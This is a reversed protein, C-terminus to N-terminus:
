RPLGTDSLMQETLIKGLVYHKRDPFFFYVKEKYEFLSPYTGIETLQKRSIPIRDNDALLVPKKFMIPQGKAHAVERGVSLYVPRRNRCWDCVHRGQNADGTNNHFILVFRGDRLKYLPCPIVPQAVKQGGDRYRLVDPKSWTAGHDESISYAAYGTASRMICFLRGDSLSQITPEQLMSGWKHRPDTMRLGDAGNEPLTTMTLKEPDDETLINDFRMFRVESPFVEGNSLAKTAIQTFGVMVDGANTVVPMQYVIWNPDAEPDKHSFNDPSIRLHKYAKSWTRGDNDSYQFWLQGTWQHHFDVQGRHKNYFMYIRGSHPVLFPFSWSAIFGDDEPGAFYKPKSWTKGEDESISTIIHQDSGGELSGMTWTAFFKGSALPVVAVHQNCTDPGDMSDPIYVQFDSDAHRPTGTPSDPPATSIGLDNRLVDEDDIVTLSPDAENITSGEAKKVVIFDLSKKVVVDRKTSIDNVNTDM